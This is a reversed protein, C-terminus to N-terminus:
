QVRSDKFRYTQCAPIISLFTEFSYYVIRSTATTDSVSLPQRDPEGLENAELAFLPPMKFAFVIMTISITKLFVLRLM